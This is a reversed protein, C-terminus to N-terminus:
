DITIAVERRRQLADELMRALADRHAFLLDLAEESRSEFRLQLWYSSVTLHLTTEPLVDARLPIRVQWGESDSVTRENCFRAVTQGISAVLPHLPADAPATVRASGGTGRELPMPMPVPEGAGTPARDADVEDPASLDDASAEDDSPLAVDPLEEVGAPPPEIANRPLATVPPPPTNRRARLLDAFRLRAPPDASAAKERGAGPRHVEVANFSVSRPRTM